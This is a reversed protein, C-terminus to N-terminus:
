DNKEGIYIMNKLINDDDTKLINLYRLNFSEMYKVLTMPTFTCYVDELFYENDNAVSKLADDDYLNQTVVFIYKFKINDIIHKLYLYSNPIYEIINNLIIVDYNGNPITLLDFVKHKNAKFDQINFYNIDKNEINKINFKDSYIFDKNEDFSIDLIKSDKFYNKFFKDSYEEITNLYYTSLDGTKTTMSYSITSSKLSKIDKYNENVGSKKILGKFFEDYVKDANFKNNWTNFANNRILDYDNNSLEIMDIIHNALEKPHFNEKLLYGNNGVDIIENNGGVDTAIVPIGFSMAEMISVPVGESSSVNIFLNIENNKYYNKVEENSMLGIFNFNVKHKLETTALNNLADTFKEEGSGIHTWEVNVGAVLSLSNILLDIRKVPVIRSCSVIRFIRKRDNYYKKVTELTNRTGLYSVETNNFKYEKKIFEVGDSSCPYLYDLNELIKEKFLQIGAHHYIDYRHARCVRLPFDGKVQTIALASYHFWFSYLITESEILNFNDVIYRITSDIIYAFQSEQQIKNKLQEVNSIKNKNRNFENIAINKYNLIVEDQNNISNKTEIIKVNNFEIKEKDFSSVGYFLSPIIFINDFKKSLSKIENRVFVDNNKYPYGNTVMIINM